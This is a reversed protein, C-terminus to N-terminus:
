AVASVLGITHGEPDAFLAIEINQGPVESPGHVRKGGLSEAKDLAAAIDPVDVYFTVHGEEEPVGGIGGGIAPVEPDPHEGSEVTGYDMPGGVETIEWDFLETYFQRLKRGDKGLVEFHVVPRSM